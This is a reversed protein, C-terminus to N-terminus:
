ENGCAISRCANTNPMFFGSWDSRHSIGFRNVQYCFCTYWYFLNIDFRAAGINECLNQAHRAVQGDTM